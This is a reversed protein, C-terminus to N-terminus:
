PYEALITTLIDRGQQKLTEKSRGQPNDLRIDRPTEHTMANITFEVILEIRAMGEKGNSIQDNGGQWEDDEGLTNVFNEQTTYFDIGAFDEDVRYIFDEDFSGHLDLLVKVQEISGLAKFQNKLHAAIINIEDVLSKWQRNLDRGRANGRTHAITGDPNIMPYVIIQYEDMLGSAFFADLFGELIWNATGEDGHHRSFLVITKKEPDLKEPKINFLPRGQVSQGIESLEYGNEELVPSLKQLYSNMETVGYYQIFRDNYDTINLEMFYDECFFASSPVSALSVLFYIAILVFNRARSM